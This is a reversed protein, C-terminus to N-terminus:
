ERSFCLDNPITHVLIDGVKQTNRSYDAKVLSFTELNSQHLLKLGNSIDMSCIISPVLMNTGPTSLIPAM